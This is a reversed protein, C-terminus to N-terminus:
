SHAGRRGIRPQNITLTWWSARALVANTMLSPVSHLVEVDVGQADGDGGELSRHVVCRLVQGRVRSGPQDKGRHRITGDAHKAVRGACKGLQGVLPQLPASGQPQSVQLASRFTGAGCTSIASGYSVSPM